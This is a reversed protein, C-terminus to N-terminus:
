CVPTGECVKQQGEIILEDGFDLGSVVIVGNSTFEGCEVFRKTAKGNQRLWVFYRNSDDLQLLEAPVVITESSDGSLISVNTVMGPMIDNIDDCAQNNTKNKLDESSSGIIGGIKLKVQYSRSIPNAQIGKEVVEGSLMINKLAPVTIIAKQGDSIKYIENEPVSIKVNSSKGSLITMVPIGPTVNQGVEIKKDSIVGSFPAYLKCDSLNKRSMEEISRAQKLKSQVEIWKIEPLSGKDYLEKMRNYADEAQDLSAKAANYSSQISTDDISALLQGKKVTTGVNVNVSKVTGMVSFSLSSINEGEVTGSYSSSINYSSPTIKEVKVIVPASEKEVKGSNNCGALIPLSVLLFLLHRYNM